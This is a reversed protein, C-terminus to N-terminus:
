PIPLNGDIHDASLPRRHTEKLYRDKISKESATPKVRNAAPKRCNTRSGIEASAAFAMTRRPM